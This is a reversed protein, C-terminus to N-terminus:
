VERDPSSFECQMMRSSSANKKIGEFDGVVNCSILYMFAHMVMLFFAVRWYRITFNGGTYDLESFIM